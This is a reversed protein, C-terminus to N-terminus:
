KQREVGVLFGMSSLDEQGKIMKHLDILAEITPFDNPFDIAHSKSVSLAALMLILTLKRM